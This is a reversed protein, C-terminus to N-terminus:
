SMSISSKRFGRRFVPSYELPMPQTSVRTAQVGVNLEAPVPGLARELITNEPLKKAM